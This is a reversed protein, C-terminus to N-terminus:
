ATLSSSSSSPKREIATGISSTPPWVTAEMLMATDVELRVKSFMSSVNSGSSSLTRRISAAISYPSALTLACLDMLVGAGLSQQSYNYDILSGMM